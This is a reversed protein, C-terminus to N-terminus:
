GAPWAPASVRLVNNNALSELALLTAATCALSERLDIPCAGGNKVSDIFATTTAKQGKDQVFLKKRSLLKAGLIESQRFDDLRAAVGGQFIEVFEKRLAKPGNAFYCISGISGNEFALNITVTDALNAPDLM